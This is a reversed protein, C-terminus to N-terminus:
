RYMRTNKKIWHNFFLADTYVGPSNREACGDGWSTIGLLINDPGVIPGGSDGQCADIGGEQYGYCTMRPTVVFRNMYYEQCQRNSIRPVVACRLNESLLPILFHYFKLYLGWGCIKGWKRCPTCRKTALNVANTHDNFVFAPTVEIVAIDYDNIIYNYKEHILFKTVNHGICKQHLATSGSCLTIEKLNKTTYICHAATVAWKENIIAACCVHKNNRRLSLMFPVSNIYTSHGNIIRQVAYYLLGYRLHSMFCFLFFILCRADM